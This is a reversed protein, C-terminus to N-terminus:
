KENKKFFTFFVVVFAVIVVLTALIILLLNRNSIRKFIRKKLEEEKKKDEDAKKNAKEEEEAKKKEEPNQLILNKLDADFDKNEKWKAICEEIKKVDETLNKKTEENKEKSIQENLQKKSEELVRQIEELKLKKFEENSLLLGLKTTSGETFPTMFISLLYKKTLAENLKKEWEELKLFDTLQFEEDNKIKYDLQEVAFSLYNKLDAGYKKEFDETKGYKKAKEAQVQSEEGKSGILKNRQDEFMNITKIQKDLDDDQQKLIEFQSNIEKLKDNFNKKEEDSPKKEKFEENITKLFDTIAQITKNLESKFETFSFKSEKESIMNFSKQFDNLSVYLKSITTSFQKKLDDFKKPEKLDPLSGILNLLKTMPENFSKKSETTMLFAFGVLKCYKSSKELALNNKETDSVVFIKKDPRPRLFDMEACIMDTTNTESYAGKKFALKVLPNDSGKFDVITHFLIDGNAGEFNIIVKEAKKLNEMDKCSIRPAYPRPLQDSWMINGLIDMFKADEEIQIAVDLAETKKDILKLGSVKKIEYDHAVRLMLDDTPTESEVSWIGELFLISLITTKLM